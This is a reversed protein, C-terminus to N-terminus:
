RDRSRLRATMDSFAPSVLAHSFSVPPASTAGSTDCLADIVGSRGCGMGAASPSRPAAGARGHGRESSRRPTSGRSDRFCARPAGPYETTEGRFSFRGAPELGAPPQHRSQNSRNARRWHPGCGRLHDHDRPPPSEARSRRSAREGPSGLYRIFEATWSCTPAAPRPQLRRCRDLRTMRWSIESQAQASGSPQQHRDGSFREIGERLRYVTNGGGNGNGARRTSTRRTTSPM